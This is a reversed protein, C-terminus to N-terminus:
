PLSILWHTSILLVAAMEFGSGKKVLHRLAPTIVSVSQVCPMSVSLICANGTLPFDTTQQFPRINPADGTGRATTGTKTTVLAFVPKPSASPFATNRAPVGMTPPRAMRPCLWGLRVSRIVPLFRDYTWSYQWHGILSLRISVPIPLPFSFTMSAGPKLSILQSNTQLFIHM